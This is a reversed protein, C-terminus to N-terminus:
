RRKPKREKRWRKEHDAADPFATEEGNEDRGVRRPITVSGETLRRRFDTTERSVHDDSVEDVEYRVRLEKGFAVRVERDEGGVEIEKFPRTRASKLISGKAPPHDRPADPSQGPPSPLVVVPSPELERTAPPQAQGPHPEPARPPKQPPMLPKLVSRPVAARLFTEPTMSRSPLVVAPQTRLQQLRQLQGLEGRRDAELMLHGFALLSAVDGSRFLAPDRAVRIDHCAGVVAGELDHESLPQRLHRRLLADAAAFTAGTHRGDHCIFMTRGGEDSATLALHASTDLLLRPPITAGSGAHVRIWKLSHPSQSESSADAGRTMSIMISRVHGEAVKSGPSLLPTRKGIRAIRATLRQAPDELTRVKAGDFPGHNLAMKEHSSRLDVVRRVDQALCAGVFALDAGRPSGTLVTGDGLRSVDRWGAQRDAATEQRRPALAGPKGFLLRSPSPPETKERATLRDLDALVRRSQDPDATQPDYAAAGRLSSALRQLINPM